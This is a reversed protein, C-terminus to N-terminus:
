GLLLTGDVIIGDDGAAILDSLWECFNYAQQKSIGGDTIRLEIPNAGTASTGVVIKSRERTSAQGVAAISYFHDAM